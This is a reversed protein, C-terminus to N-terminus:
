EHVVVREDDPVGVFREGMPVVKAEALLDLPVVSALLDGVNAVQNIVV